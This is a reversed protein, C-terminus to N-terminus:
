SLLLIQNHFLCINRTLYPNDWLFETMTTLAFLKCNSNCFSVFKLHYYSNAGLIYVYKKGLCILGKVPGGM